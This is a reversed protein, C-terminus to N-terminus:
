AAAVDEGTEGRGRHAVYYGRYREMILTEVLRSRDQGEEICAIGLAKHAQASLNVSTKVPKAAQGDAPKRPKRKQRAV